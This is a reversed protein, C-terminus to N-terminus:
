TGGRFVKNMAAGNAAAPQRGLRGPKHTDVHASLSPSRTLRPVATTRSGRNLPQDFRGLLGPQRHSRECPEAVCLVKVLQGVTTTRARGRM